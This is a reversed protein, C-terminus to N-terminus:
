ARVTIDMTAVPGSHFIMEPEPFPMEDAEPFMNVWKNYRDQVSGLQIHLPHMQTQSCARITQDHSLLSVVHRWSSFEDIREHAVSVERTVQPAVTGGESKVDRVVDEDKIVPANSWVAVPGSRTNSASDWWREVDDITMRRAQEEQAADDSQANTTCWERVHTALDTKVALFPPSVAASFAPAAEVWRGPELISSDLDTHDTDVHRLLEALTGVAPIGSPTPAVVSCGACDSVDCCAVFDVTELDDDTFSSWEAVDLSLEMDEAVSQELSALLLGQRISIIWESAVEDIVDGALTGTEADEFPSSTWWSLIPELTVFDRAPPMSDHVKAPQKDKYATYATWLRRLRESAIRAVDGHISRAFQLM